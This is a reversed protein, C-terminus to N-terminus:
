SVRGVEKLYKKVLKRQQDEDVTDQLVKGTIQVTLDSVETKLSEMAKKHEMEIEKRARAIMDDAEQKADVKAEKIIEEERKRADNIIQRAEDKAGALKEEYQEKLKQAEQREQEAKNLNDKIENSRNEMFDSMPKFFFRKMLYFLILINAITLFFTANLEVM